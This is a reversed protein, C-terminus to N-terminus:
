GCQLPSHVKQLNEWQLGGERQLGLPLAGLAREVGGATVQQSSVVRGEEAVILAFSHAYALSGGLRIADGEVSQPSTVLSTPCLYLKHTM